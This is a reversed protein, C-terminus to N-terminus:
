AAEHEPVLTQCVIRHELFVDTFASIYRLRSKFSEAPTSILVFEGQRSATLETSALNELLWQAFSLEAPVAIMLHMHNNGGVDFLRERLGMHGMADRGAADAQDLIHQYDFVDGM